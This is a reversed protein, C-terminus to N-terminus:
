AIETNTQRRKSSSNLVNTVEQSTACEFANSGKEDTKSPDAGAQLLM